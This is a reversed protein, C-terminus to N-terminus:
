TEEQFLWTEADNILRKFNQLRAIAVQVDGEGALVARGIEEGTIASKRQILRAVRLSEKSYEPTIEEDVFEPTECLEQIQKSTLKYDIIQRVMEAQYETELNLVFRLKKEEIGHLDALEFAEDSLALLAKYRSFHMKSIGGMAALIQTHAESKGRLHLDLAQRYFDNTVSYDPIEYEHVALLLLAAQRAMAIASLGSRATNEKAQRFPSAIDPSIIISPVMGDGRYDPIFDRLLWSAWYRREGTEIRFQISVGQTVDVVTLPNVQGDDRITLALTVLDRLLIEEPSLAAHNDVDDSDAVLEIVSSFPRGQQRATVQVKKVLERLAQSPTLQNDHFANHIRDPLMRRPQVPDPRILDLVIREVRLGHAEAVVVAEDFMDDSVSALLADIRSTDHKGNKSSM